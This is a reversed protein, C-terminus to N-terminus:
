IKLVIAHDKVISWNEFNRHEVTYKSETMLRVRVSIPQVSMRERMLLHPLMRVTLVSGPM